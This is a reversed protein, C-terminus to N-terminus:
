EFKGTEPNYNALSDGGVPMDGKFYVAQITTMIGQNQNAFTGARKYEYIVLDGSADKDEIEMFYLGSEDSMERGIKTDPNECYTGMQALIHERSPASEAAKEKEVVPATEAKQVPAIEIAGAVVAAGVTKKLFDRRNMQPGGEM